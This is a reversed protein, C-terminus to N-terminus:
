HSIQQQKNSIIYYYLSATYYVYFYCIIDLNRWPGGFNERPGDTPVAARSEQEHSPRRSDRSPRRIDQRLNMM